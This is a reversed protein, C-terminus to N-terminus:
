IKRESLRQGVKLAHMTHDFWTAWHQYLRPTERQAARALSEQKAEQRLATLREQSIQYYYDYQM